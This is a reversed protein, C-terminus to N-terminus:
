LLRRVRVSPGRSWLNDANPNYPQPKEQDLFALVSDLAHKHQLLVPRAVKMDVTIPPCTCPINSGSLAQSHEGKHVYNLVAMKNLLSDMALFSTQLHRLASLYGTTSKHVVRQSALSTVFQVNPHHFFASPSFYQVQVSNCHTHWHHYHRRIMNCYWAIWDPSKWSLQVTSFGLQLDLPVRSPLQAATPVQSLYSLLTNCSLADAASNSTNQGPTHAAILEYDFYASM